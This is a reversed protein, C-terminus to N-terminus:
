PRRSAFAGVPAGLAAAMAPTAVHGIREIRRVFAEARPLDGARRAEAVARRWAGVARRSEGRLEAREAEEAEYLAKGVVWGMEDVLGRAITLDDTADVGARRLM